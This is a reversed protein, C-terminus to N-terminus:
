LLDNLWIILLKKTKDNKNSNRTGNMPASTFPDLLHNSIGNKGLNWGTSNILGNKMTISADKNFWRLYLKYKLYKSVKNKITGIMKNNIDWGSMPWDM